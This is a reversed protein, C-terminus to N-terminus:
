NQASSPEVENKFIFSGDRYRGRCPMFNVKSMISDSGNIFCVIL